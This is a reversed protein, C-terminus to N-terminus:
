RPSLLIITLFFDESKPSQHFSHWANLFEFNSDLQKRISGMSAGSRKFSIGLEM